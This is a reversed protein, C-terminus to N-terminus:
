FKDMKPHILPRNSNDELFGLIERILDDKQFNERVESLRENFLERLLLYYDIYM